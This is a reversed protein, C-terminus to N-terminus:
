FKDKSDLVITVPGDNLLRVKMDAGFVGAKVAVTGTSELRFLFKEYLPIAQDPRAAAIFSPRNGKKTAAHLTFQSVVLISGQVDAVSKNMLGAEDSFIRMNTIKGVLYEIDEDTDNHTIGLLVLLGDQIESHLKGNITVSAESVRQLVARM